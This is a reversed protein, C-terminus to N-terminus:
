SKTENEKEMAKLVKEIDELWRVIAALRARSFFSMFSARSNTHAVDAGLYFCMADALLMIALGYFGIFDTLMGGAIAGCMVILVCSGWFNSRARKQNAEMYDDYDGQLEPYKKVLTSMYLDGYHLEMKTRKLKEKDIKKRM